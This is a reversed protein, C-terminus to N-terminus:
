PTIYFRMTQGKKRGFRGLYENFRKGVEPVGIELISSRLYQTLEQVSSECLRSQDEFSLDQILKWSTGSLKGVIRAVEQPKDNESLSREYRICRDEFENFTDAQGDWRPGDRKWQNKGDNYGAGSGIYDAVIYNVQRKM